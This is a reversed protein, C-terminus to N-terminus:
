WVRIDQRAQRLIHKQPTNSWSKRLRHHIALVTLPFTRERRVVSLQVERLRRTQPPPGNKKRQTRVNGRKRVADRFRLKRGMCAIGQTRKRHLADVDLRFPQHLDRGVVVVALINGVTRGLLKGSRDARYRFFLFCRRFTECGSTFCEMRNLVFTRTYVTCMTKLSFDSCM